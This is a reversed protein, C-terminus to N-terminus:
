GSRYNPVIERLKALLGKRDMRIALDRLEEVDADSPLRGGENFVVRLIKPHDTRALREDAGTLTEVLKEGPRLGTFTITVDREPELGSLRIMQRALDVIKVPNGMDLLFVEGGRGIAGAQLVLQAAESVTMFYRLMDPHTVTVPGGAWIQERFLPVVSGRSGLVNGFRVAMAPCSKGQCQVLMEAIRKAAGMVSCPDAAKDTSICVVKGVRYRACARLVNFTGIVNNMVAEDPNDELMPVHKDAAAHFVIQPRCVEFVGALKPPNIVDGLVPRLVPSVGLSRALARLEREVVYISHEGRGFLFLQAVGFRLLQRCIESGISGGSGTVLVRKGALYSRIAEADLEVPERGLLDEIDVDRISNVTVRGDILSGLEPVIKIRASTKRCEEVIEQIRRRSVSPLAIIIEDVDYKAAAKAIDACTGVVPVGQIHMRQKHPDDDIFGVVELNLRPNTKLERLTMVGADGAGVILVSGGESRPRQESLVRRAFRIGGMMVTCLVGDMLFVSRPYGVLDRLTVVVVVFVATAILNARVIQLLDDVSVYKWMGRYMSTGAFVVLKVAVLWLLTEGLVAAYEPALSFDFRLLFSLYYAGVVIVLHALVIVLLRIRLIVSRISQIM